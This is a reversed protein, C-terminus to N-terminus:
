SEGAEMLAGPTPSDMAPYLFETLLRHFHHTGQERAPSYRGRDYLRSQTGRQVAEVVAEDEMEVQDLASGAGADLKGADRVFSRFLVRTRDIAEPLVVNLSLGWPYFNFMLNPFVWWYYAAIRRGGGPRGHDPSEAPLDFAIEGDRAEATNFGARRLQRSVLERTQADDDVILIDGTGPQVARTVISVLRTPDVPKVMYECAGLSIGKARHEEISIIVVPIHALAPTSKLESLVTWGDLKPLILDLVIASPTHKHALTMAEVGDMARLVRLGEKELESKLLQHVLPDDDVVAIIAPRSPM